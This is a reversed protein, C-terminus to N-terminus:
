IAASCRKFPLRESYVAKVDRWPEQTEMLLRIIALEFLVTKGSGTPACAVFNKNTYLVDDLAQSQVYNFFPFESFVSRFKIPIESVPRLVGASGTIHLPQPTMPPVVARRASHTEAHQAAQPLRGSPASLGLLPQSLFPKPPFAPAKHGVTAKLPQPPLPVTTMTVQSLCAGPTTATQNSGSTGPENKPSSEYRTTM